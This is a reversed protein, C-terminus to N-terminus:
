VTAKRRRLLGFGMSLAGAGLLAFSSPEPALAFTQDIVSTEAAGTWAGVYVDKEIYLNNYVGNLGVTVDRVCGIGDGCAVNAFGVETGNSYVKETVSAIAHGWFMGDFGLGVKDIGNSSSVSYTLVADTFSMPFATFGSSFQIGIGPNTITNVNIESCQMPTSFSGGNAISCGFNSFNYGGVSLMTASTVPASHGLAPALVAIASILLSKSFRM